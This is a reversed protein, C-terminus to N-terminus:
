QFHRLFSFAHTPSCLSFHLASVPLTPDEGAEALAACTRPLGLALQLWTRQSRPDAVAGPVVVGVEVCRGVLAVGCGDCRSMVVAIWLPM